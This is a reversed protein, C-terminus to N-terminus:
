NPTARPMSAYGGKAYGKTKKSPMSGMNKKQRKAMANGDSMSGLNVGQGKEERVAIKEAQKLGKEAKSKPPKSDEFKKSYNKGDKKNYSDWIDKAEQALKTLKRAVM